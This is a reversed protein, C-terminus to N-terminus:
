GAFPFIDPSMLALILSSLIGIVQLPLATMRFWEQASQFASNM